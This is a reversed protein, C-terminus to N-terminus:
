FGSNLLWFSEHCFFFKIAALRVHVDPRDPVDIVALRRQRRRDGLHQCACDSPSTGNLEIRDIVRRFFLGAADRDRHRVDLVLGGVPVVRVHIARAVGVVDLVHDGARRLHIARNQHDRGGVTGHRLRALVNQQRALHAHRVDHHRM